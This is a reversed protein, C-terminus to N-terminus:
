KNQNLIQEKMWKAGDICIASVLYKGLKDSVDEHMTSYRDSYAEIEEDSPLEIPTLQKLIEPETTVWGGYNRGLQIAKLLEKETYLKM